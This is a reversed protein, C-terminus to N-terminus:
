NTSNNNNYKIYKFCIIIEFVLATIILAITVYVVPNFFKCIDYRNASVCIWEIIIIIFYSSISSLSLYTTYLIWLKHIKKSKINYLAYISSFLAGGLLTYITINFFCYLINFVKNSVEIYNCIVFSLIMDIAAIFTLATLCIWNDKCFKHM